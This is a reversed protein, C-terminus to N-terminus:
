SSHVASHPNPFADQNEEVTGHLCAFDKEVILDLSGRLGLDLTAYIGIQDGAAWREVDRAPLSVTLAPPNFHVAPADILSDQGLSYTLRSHDDPGLCVTEEIRGSKLLAEVESRMVRLRLSNGKIRLKM